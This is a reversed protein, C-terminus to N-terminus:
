AMRTVDRARPQSSQFAKWNSGTVEAFADLAGQATALLAYPSLHFGNAGLTGVSASWTVWIRSDKQQRTCCSAPSPPNAMTVPAGPQPLDAAVSDGVASGM